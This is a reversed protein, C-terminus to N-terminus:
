IIYKQFYFRSRFDTNKRDYMTESIHRFFILFGMIIIIASLLPSGHSVPTKPTSHMFIKPNFVFDLNFNIYRM